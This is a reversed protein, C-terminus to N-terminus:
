RDEMTHGGVFGSPAQFEPVVEPAPDSTPAPDATPEIPIGPANTPTPTPTEPNAPVEPLECTAGEDPTAVAGIAVLELAGEPALAVVAEPLDYIEGAVYSIDGVIGPEVSAIVFDTLAIYSKTEVQDVM